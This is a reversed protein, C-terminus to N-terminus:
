KYEYLDTYVMNVANDEATIEIRLRVSDDPIIFGTFIKEYSTVHLLVKKYNGSDPYIARAAGVPFSRTKTDVPIKELVTTETYGDGLFADLVRGVEDANIFGGRQAFVANGFRDVVVTVPIGSLDVTQSAKGDENRGM